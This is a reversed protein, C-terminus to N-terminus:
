WSRRDGLRAVTMAVLSDRTDRDCTSVDRVGIDRAAAATQPGIALAPKAALGPCARYLAAAASSSGLVVLDVAVRPAPAGVVRYAVLPDLAFGRRALEDALHPRGRDSLVVVHSGPRPALIALAQRCAGRTVADAVRGRVALARGAAAGIAIVQGRVARSWAPPALTAAVADVGSESAFIVGARGAAMRAALQGGCGPVVQARLRPVEHVEAGLRRLRRALLSAGPRARAVAIRRGALPGTM